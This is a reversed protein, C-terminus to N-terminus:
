QHLWEGWSCGPRHWSARLIQWQSVDTRIVVLMTWLLSELHSSPFAPVNTPSPPTVARPIHPPHRVMAETYQSPWSFKSNHKQTRLWILFLSFPSAYLLYPPCSLHKCPKSTSVQSFSVV